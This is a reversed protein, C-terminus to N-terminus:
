EGVREEADNQYVKKESFAPLASVATRLMDMPLMKGNLSKLLEIIQKDLEMSSVLKTRFQELEDKNPLTGYLVLYSVEEFNSNKALSEISYGRYWLRGNTGDVKCIKTETFYVGELGKIITPTMADAM